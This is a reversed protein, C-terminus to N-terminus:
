YDIVSATLVRTEALRREPDHTFEAKLGVQNKKGCVFCRLDNFIQIM